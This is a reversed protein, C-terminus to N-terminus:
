LSQCHHEGEKQLSVALNEKITDIVEEMTTTTDGADGAGEGEDEDGGAGGARGAAGAPANKITTTDKNGMNPVPRTIPGGRIMASDAVTSNSPDVTAAGAAPTPVPQHQLAKLNELISPFDPTPNGANASAAALVAQINATLTAPDTGDVAGPAGGMGLGMAMAMGMGMDMGMSEPPFFLEENVDGVHMTVVNVDVQDEAIVSTPEAPSEPVQSLNMYLAGLATQERKAQADKEQSNVGRPKDLDPHPFRLPLPESWDIVEEFLQAHMAAGEGRDLERLSIHMANDVDDDYVAREIIKVAVLSSDPAWTVSKKKGGNKSVGPALPPTSTSGQLSPTANMGPSGKRVKMMKLAEQFPDVVNNDNAQKAPIPAKKFSPLKAKPKPASFFSADAGASKAALTASSSTTSKGESKVKSTVTVPKTSTSTGVAPKKAPPLSSSTSSVSGVSGSKSSAGAAPHENLKRKKSRADEGPNSKQKETTNATLQRWKEEINKAMDKVAPTPHHKRARVVLKGIKSQVLAEVTFPLRDCIQLLPTTMQTQEPSAGDVLSTRLWSRTVTLADENELWARFYHNPAKDRMETLIEMRLSPEVKEVGYDLIKEVLNQVSAAGTFLFPRITREFREKKDRAQQEELLQQQQQLFQQQQQQFQAQAQSTATASVNSSTSTSASASPPLPVAQNYFMHPHIGASMMTSASHLVDPSLTGQSSTHPRYYPNSYLNHLPQTFTYPQQHSSSQSPYNSAQFQHQLSSSGSGNMNMPSLASDILMQQPTTTAHQLPPSPQSGQGQSAASQPQLQSTSPQSSQAHGQPNSSAPNTAGLLSSYGSVPIPSQSVQPPWATTYPSYNVYYGYPQHFYSTPSLMAQSTSSGALDDLNFDLELPTTTAPAPNTAAPAPPVSPSAAPGVSPRDKSPSNQFWGDIVMEQTSSSSPLAHRSSAPDTAMWFANMDM